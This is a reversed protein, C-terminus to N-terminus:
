LWKRGSFDARVLSELFRVYLNPLRDSSNSTLEVLGNESLDIVVLRSPKFPLMARIFSSGISGAGGIVLLSKGEIEERLIEKNLEIDSLFMSTSRLTINENIFKDINLM